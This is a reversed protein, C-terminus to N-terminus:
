RKELSKKVRFEVIKTIIDYPIPKDLPFQVTGKSTTYGSLEKKFTEIGLPGPYFGIHTKYAGFHVLNGKLTFTPIGYSIKELADPAVAHITERIQQLIKQVDKPYQKIYEDINTISTNMRM